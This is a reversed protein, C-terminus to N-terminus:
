RLGLSELVLTSRLGSLHSPIKGARVFLDIRNDLGSRVLLNVRPPHLQHAHINLFSYDVM